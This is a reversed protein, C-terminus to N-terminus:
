CRAPLHIAPYGARISAQIEQSPLEDNSRREIDLSRIKTSLQQKTITHRQGTVNM